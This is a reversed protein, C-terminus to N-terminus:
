IGYSKILAEPSPSRGKFDLFMQSVDKSGGQSLITKLFSEATNKCIVGNEKFSDFIDASLIDAWKYSYYGAAYGGSFIHQFNNLFRNDLDVGFVSCSKRIENLIEYPEREPCAHINLDALSFEVQSLLGLSVLFNKDKKIKDLIDNGLKEGTKYHGSIKDIVVEEICFYEMLQSPLEVADWVVGNIGAVSKETMETLMHHLAHGFEHFLTEVEDFTLLSPKDNFGKSFNCVIFAIPINVMDKNEFKDQHGSMWAGNRKQERAYLDMMFSSIKKNGKYISYYEVDENYLNDLIEKKVSIGYLENVLLFLGEKVKEIPFYEKIENEDINLKMEKYLRTYYSIDWKSFDVISDEVMAFEKLLNIDEVGKDFAKDKLLYLLDNVEELSDAMKVSLSYDVYNKYGVLRVKENMLEVLKKLIPQNDYKGELLFESAVQSYAKHLKKRLDRNKLNKIIDQLYPQQLTIVLEGAGKEKSDEVIFSMLDETLGDLDDKNVTLSWESITSAINESYQNSLKSLELSIKNYKEKDTKSLTAGSDNFSKRGKRIILKQVDNLNNKELKDYLKLLRKDQSSKNSYEIILPLCENYIDDIEKTKKVGRIHNLLGFFNGFEISNKEFDRFANDWTPFEIAFIKEDVEISKAIYYEVAEKIHEAKIKSFDLKCGLSLLPNIQKKTMNKKIRKKIKFIIAFM